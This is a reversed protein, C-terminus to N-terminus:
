MISARLKVRHFTAVPICCLCLGRSVAPSLVLISSQNQSCLWAACYLPIYFIHRSCIGSWCTWFNSHFILCLEKHLFILYERWIMRCWHLQVFLIGASCGRAVAMAVQFVFFAVCTKEGCSPPTLGVYRVCEGSTSSAICRECWRVGLCVRSACDGGFHRFTSTNLM